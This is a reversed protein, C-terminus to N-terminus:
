RQGPRGGGTFLLERYRSPTIGESRRFARTFSNISGYGAKESIEGIQWLGEALLKKACGLRIKNLLEGFGMGFEQNIFRSLYSSSYGLKDAVEILSINKSSYNENIFTDVQKKLYSNHSVKNKGIYECMIRYINYVCDMLQRSNRYRDIDLLQEPSQNFIADFDADIENCAKIIVSVFNYFLCYMYQISINGTNAINNFYEDLLRTCNKLDGAKISNLLPNDSHIPLNLSSFIYKEIDPYYVLSDKGKLFCYELSKRAEKHSIYIKGIDEYICGVGVFLLVGFHSGVAAKLNRIEQIVAKEDQPLINLVINLYGKEDEFTYVKCNDLYMGALKTIFKPIKTPLRSKENIDVIIICSAKYPFLMEVNDYDAAPGKGACLSQLMFKNIYDRSKDIDSHLQERELKMSEIADMALLYENKCKGPTGPKNYLTKIKATLHVWPKYSFGAMLLSLLLGTGFSLMAILASLRRIENIRSIISDMSSFVVFVWDNAKSVSYSVVKDPKGKFDLVFYGDESKVGDPLLEKLNGADGDSYIIEGANTFVAARERGDTERGGMMSFINKESIFMLINAYAGTEGVPITQIYTIYNGILPGTGNIKKLPLYKNYWTDKMMRKLDSTSIDEYKLVNDFFYEADYKGEQTIVTSSQIFYIAMLSVFNNGAKYSEILSYIDKTLYNGDSDLPSKKYLFEKIRKDSNMQVALNYIEYARIDMTDRIAQSRAMDKKIEESKFLNIVPFYLLLIVIFVPIASVSLFSLVYRKRLNANFLMKFISM